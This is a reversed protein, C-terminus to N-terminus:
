ALLNAVTVQLLAESGSGVTILAFKGDRDVVALTPIGRVFYNDFDQKEAIVFPYDIGTNTRFAEVHGPFTEETMDKVSEGGSQMQSEDAPMYGNAYFRTVGIVRLGEDKHKGYMENIGPMVARCPGCWTAWFDVLVVNGKLGSLPTADGGIWAKSDIDPATKGILEKRLTVYGMTREDANKEAAAYYEAAKEIMGQAAAYDGLTLQLRAKAPGEAEDAAKAVIAGAGDIDGCALMANPLSRTRVSEAMREDGFHELYHKCAAVAAEAHETDNAVVVLGMKLLDADTKPDFGQWACAAFAEEFAQQPGRVTARIETMKAMLARQADSGREVDRAEARLPAMQQDSQERAQELQKFSARVADLKSAAADGAQQAPLIGPTAGLLVCALLRFSATRTNM